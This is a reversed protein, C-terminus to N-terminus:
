VPIKMKSVMQNAHQGNYPGESLGQWLTMGERGFLTQELITTSPLQYWTSFSTPFELYWLSCIKARKSLSRFWALLTKIPQCSLRRKSPAEMSESIYFPECSPLCHRLAMRFFNLSMIVYTKFLLRGGKNFIICAATIMVQDIIQYEHESWVQRGM